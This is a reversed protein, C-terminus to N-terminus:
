GLWGMRGAVTMLIMVMLFTPIAHAAAYQWRDASTGGRKGARHWGLAGAFAMLILAPIM